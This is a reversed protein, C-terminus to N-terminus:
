ARRCANVFAAALEPRSGFHLHVYSGLVNNVKFGAAQTRGRRDRIDHVQDMDGARTIESYHFEHGRASAGAPGLFIDKNFVVERYGLSKLRPLMRVGLPLLGAMPWSRGDLDELTESLFMLGGCEGYIPRGAQGLARVDAILGRNESLAAAYLEPYGGGLYLGDLNPPLSRDALASFVVIEAGAAALRRLNEEYYFCFARDRPVGIRVKPGVAAPEPAAVPRPVRPLGALLRDVDLGAEIWDALREQAEHDLPHDEATVLGLHREPIALAPDRTLGGLFPVDPLDAMAEALYEAHSSSGVRNAAVGAWALAPDFKVFGLALAALSRAMSRADVCLLVPLGLLKAMQATSGSEDRGSFGDYLGMVGEVVALDAGASWRGFVALNEDPSLMWGDLNHSPRGCVQAHRGPDIFDPGVKFPQAAIGRRRLAALLALTVTTKGAGSNAAAVVLGPITRSDSGSPATM